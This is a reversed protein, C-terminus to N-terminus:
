FNCEHVSVCVRACVTVYAFVRSWHGGWKPISIEEGPLAQGQGKSLSLCIPYLGARGERFFSILLLLNDCCQPSHRERQGPDTSEGNFPEQLFLRTAAAQLDKLHEKM